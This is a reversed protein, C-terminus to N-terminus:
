AGSPARSTTKAPPRPTNTARFLVALEVHDAGSTTLLRPAGPQAPDYLAVILRYPDATLADPLPLAYRTLAAALEDPGFPQDTQAALRGDADLLQLTLKEGGRLATSPGAWRLYVSVVDGEVLQRAPVGAAALSFGAAFATETPSLGAPPREYVQVRWGAVPTEFRLVYQKALAAAAIGREDWAPSAQVAAVVREVGQAVLRAAERDAAAADHAAPPLVVHGAGGRYYYWLTPDPYTQVIRVTETAYGASYRALVAALTRWGRTKSYAPDDYYRALALLSALTLVALLALPVTQWGRRVSRTVAREEQAGPPRSGGAAAALLLFFGPLAAVLYRENFIPRSLAGLWTALLPALLYLGLFWLTRRGGAGAQALRVAGILLLGAALVAILPQQMAPAREGAAFVSLARAWMAVFGPSDGNGVYGTLTARAAILWPLYLLGVAAQAALWALLDRRAADRWAARGLVFLNQAIIVYAAYYHTHLGLWTVGVYGAWLVARRRALAELLLVMSATTLALSMSYMRADQSHWIAYPSLALLAAALTAVTRNLDLRRGLRYLLAVALVGWWLSLFRLAFETQGALAFWVKQFFYSAVPHPERLALTSQVIQGFSELSFLRGLAEDGRLEQFGLRFARAACALLLIALMAGRAAFAKRWFDPTPQARAGTIRPGPPLSIRKLTM